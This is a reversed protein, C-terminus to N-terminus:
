AKDLWMQAAEKATKGEARFTVIEEPTFGADMLAVGLRGYDEGTELYIKIHCFTTGALDDEGAVFKQLRETIIENQRTFQALMHAMAPNYGPFTAAM